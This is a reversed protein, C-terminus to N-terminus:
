SNSFRPTIWNRPPKMSTPRVCAFIPVCLDRVAPDPDGAFELRVVPEYRRKRVQESVQDIVSAKGNETEEVEADRTLTGLTAPGVQMGPYLKGLNERIIEHLRVFLLTNPM